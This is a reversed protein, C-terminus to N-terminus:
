DNNKPPNTEDDSDLFAPLLAAPTSANLLNAVDAPQMTVDIATSTSVWSLWIQTANKKGGLIGTKASVARVHIPNIWIEKGDTTTFQVLM